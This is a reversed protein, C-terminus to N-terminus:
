KKSAQPSIITVIAGAALLGETKRTGVEGAGVVLVHRGRLDLFMPYYTM